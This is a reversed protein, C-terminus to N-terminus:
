KACRLLDCSREFGFGPKVSLWWYLDIGQFWEIGVCFSHSVMRIIQQKKSFLATFVSYKMVVKMACNASFSCEYSSMCLNCCFILIKEEKEVSKESYWNMEWFADVCLAPYALWFHRHIRSFLALHSCLNVLQRDGEGGGGKCVM